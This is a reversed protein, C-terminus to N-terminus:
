QNENEKNPTVIIHTDEMPIVTMSYDTVFLPEIRCIGRKAKAWLLIDKYRGRRNKYVSIKIDPIDVGLREVIKSLAERDENTVQLMIMGTDIKDAISKAGRLLNQDYIKATTFDGNLQTSTMIFVGLQNCLDKLKVSMLFLINDERLGKVGSRGGVESLIKMSSHLYDFMVYRCDYEKVAYKIVNEVDQMSFDSLKKIQLPSDSLIEAARLVREREGQYYEGTLIHEEDVASLFALMMTQIEEEDQETSIFITPEKTGNPIWENKLEDFIQDCAINCADAIMARTNHTVIGQSMIFLHEPNDVYFCTTEEQANVPEISVIPLYTTINEDLGANVDTMQIFYYGSQDMDVTTYYGLSRGLAVVYDKVQTSLIYIEYKNGDEFVKNAPGSDLFGNLLDIRQSISGQLYEYPDYVINERAFLCQLTKENNELLAGVLYPAIIFNKEVYKIAKQMPIFCYMENKDQIIKALDKTEDVLFKRQQKDEENQEITCYSWLHHESCYAIRDDAFKIAWINEEGQPYVGKVQTPNGFADFLYDGVKIDMVRRDGQPTPIIMSNPLAKGVGTAASRLYLKKLRAGRHITNVFKGYLPYGVEPTQQLRDILAAAGKGAQIFDDDTNDVYKLRINLVKQDVINAIESLSHNDLWENQAQMKKTDLINNDDYLDSLDMGAKYYMRLLTMKKLRSYYYDFAAVQTIEELKSLYDQGNFNQYIAYKSPREKLYDEITAITVEKAGLQHLNYMAGFLVSHIGEKFDDENFMYKEEMDLLKPNLFIGGIVQIAAAADYYRIM